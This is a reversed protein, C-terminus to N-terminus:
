AAAGIEKRGKARLEENVREILRKAIAREDAPSSTMIGSMTVQVVVSGGGGGGGAMMALDKNPIITGSRNPVFLETTKNWSGDPNDGVVYAGGPSVPGGM